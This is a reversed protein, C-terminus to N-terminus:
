EAFGTPAHDMTQSDFTFHILFPVAYLYRRNATICKLFTRLRRDGIRRTNGSTQSKTDGGSTEDLLSM